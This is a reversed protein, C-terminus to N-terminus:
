RTALWERIAIVHELYHEFTNSALLQYVTLDDLWDYYGPTFLVDESLGAAHALVQEYSRLFAGLVEPLPRDRAALYERHNLADVDAATFTAPRDPPEGRASAAMWGLYTQEWMTIHALIDKVSWDDMVGPRVLQEDTLPVITRMLFDHEARICDLLKLRDMRADM